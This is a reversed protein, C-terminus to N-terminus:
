FFNDRSESAYVRIRYQQVRVPGLKLQRNERNKKKGEGFVRRLQVGRIKGLFVESNSATERKPSLIQTLNPDYIM